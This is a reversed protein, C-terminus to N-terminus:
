KVEEMEATLPFKYTSAMHEVQLVKTEAIDKTYVGCVGKGTNHILLMLGVADSQSKGFIQQLVQVVFDMPTTDDNLALVAYMPPEKLDFKEKDITENNSQRKVKEKSM